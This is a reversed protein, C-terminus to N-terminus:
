KILLAIPMTRFFVLFAQTNQMTITFVFAGIIMMSGFLAPLPTRM